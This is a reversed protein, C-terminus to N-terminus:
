MGCVAAAAGEGACGVPVRVTVLCGVGLAIIISSSGGLVRATGGCGGGAELYDLLHVVM